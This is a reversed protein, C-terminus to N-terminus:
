TIDIEQLKGQATELGDTCEALLISRGCPYTDPLTQLDLSHQGFM